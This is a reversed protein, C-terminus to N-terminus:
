QGKLPLSFFQIESCSQIRELQLEKIGPNALSTQLQRPSPADSGPFLEDACGEVVNETKVAMLNVDRKLETSRKNKVHSATQRKMLTEDLGAKPPTACSFMCGGCFRHHAGSKFGSHVCASNPGGAM